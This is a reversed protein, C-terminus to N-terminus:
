LDTKPRGRPVQRFRFSCCKYSICALINFNIIPWTGCAFRNGKQRLLLNGVVIPRIRGALVTAKECHWGFPAVLNVACATVLTMVLLPKPCKYFAFPWRLSFSLIM